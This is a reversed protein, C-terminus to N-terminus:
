KKIFDYAKKTDIRDEIEIKISNSVWADLLKGVLKIKAKITKHEDSDIQQRLSNNTSIITQIDNTENNDDTSPTVNQAKKKVPILRYTDVEIPKM